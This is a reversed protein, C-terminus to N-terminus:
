PAVLMEAPKAAKTPPSNLLETKARMSGRGELPPAGRNIAAGYQASLSETGHTARRRCTRSRAQLTGIQRRKPVTATRHRMREVYTRACGSRNSYQDNSRM